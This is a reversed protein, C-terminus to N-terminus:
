ELFCIMERKNGKRIHYIFLDSAVQEFLFIEQQIKRTLTAAESINKLSTQKYTKIAYKMRILILFQILILSYTLICSLINLTRHTARNLYTFIQLCSPRQRNSDFENVDLYTITTALYIIVLPTMLILCFLCLNTTSLRKKFFFILSTTLLLNLIILEIVTTLREFFKLLFCLFVCPLGQSLDLFRLPIIFNCVFIDNVLFALIYKDFTSISSRLSPLLPPKIMHSNVSPSPQQLLSTNPTSHSRQNIEQYHYSKRQIGLILLWNFIIGILGIIVLFTLQLFLM